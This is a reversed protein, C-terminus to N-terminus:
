IVCSGHQVSEKMEYRRMEPDERVPGADRITWLGGGVTPERDRRM